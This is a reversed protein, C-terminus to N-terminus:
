LHQYTWDNEDFESKATISLDGIEITLVVVSDPEISVSSVGDNLSPNAGVGFTLKSKEQLASSEEDWNWTKLINLSEDFVIVFARCYLINFGNESPRKFTYKYNVSEFSVYTQGNVQLDYAILSDSEFGISPFVTTVLKVTKSQDQAQFLVETSTEKDTKNGCGIYFIAFALCAYIQWKSMM